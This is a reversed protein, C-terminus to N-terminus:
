KQPVVNIRGFCLDESIFDLCERLGNVLLNAESSDCILLDEGAKCSLRGCCRGIDFVDAVPIEWDLMPKCSVQLLQAASATAPARLRVNFIRLSNGSSSSMSILKTDKVDSSNSRGQRICIIGFVM